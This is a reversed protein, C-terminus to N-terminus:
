PLDSEKIFEQIQKWVIKDNDLFGKSTYSQYRKELWAKSDAENKRFPGTRRLIKNEIDSRTHEHTVTQHRDSIIACVSYDAWAVRSTYNIKTGQLSVKVFGSIYYNNNTYGPTTTLTEWKTSRSALLEHLRNHTEQFDHSNICVDIDNPTWLVKRYESEILYTISSGTIFVGKEIDTQLFEHLFIIQDKITIQNMNAKM